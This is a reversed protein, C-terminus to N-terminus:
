LNKVSLYIFWYVLFVCFIYSYIYFSRSERIQQSQLDFKKGFSKLNEFVQTLFVSWSDMFLWKFYPSWLQRSAMLNCTYISLSFSM